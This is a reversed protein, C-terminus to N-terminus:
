KKLKLNLKNRKINNKTIINKNEKNKYFIKKVFEKSIADSIAFAVSILFINFPLKQLELLTGLKTYPIIITTVLSLIITIKLAKSAKTKYFPKQTRLVFISLLEALCSEIFWVTRFTEPSMKLIFYILFFILMDFIASSIGFYKMFKKIYNVDYKQPHKILNEDINDSAIQTQPIDTILNTVMLQDPLLPIFPLAVSAFSMSFMNGFNEGATMFIYKMTNVFIRRGEIIGNELVSLEPEMLVLDAVEKAIDSAESVSISVDAKKLAPADNIGDGLYGVINGNEKLSDIIREKQRPSIEAFIHIKKAKKAISSNTMQDIENGTIVSNNDLELEKAIHKAIYKNDGTIIKLDIGRSMINKITKKSDKKLPDHILIFGLFIMENTNTINKDKNLLEIDKLNQYSLGIVRYGNYSHTEFSKNIKEKYEDINKIKQDINIYKCKNLVENVSGKTILINKCNFIEKNLSAAITLLKSDFNYPAEAIKKIDQLNNIINEKEAQINIAEDIPNKFGTQLKSNIYAIKLGDKINKGNIDIVDDVKLKGETITGTKDTCLINMSGLNQISNLKKVIVKNESLKKAGYSLTITNIAPLLQPAMGIAISLAFMISDIASKKTILNLVLIILVIIISIHMLMKSFDELTKEFETKTKKSISNGIKGFETNKGTNTIQITAKGSYIYTGMFIEDNNKKSIPISEGTLSSEDILLAESNIIVGDAPIINGTTLTVIDNPVLDSIDVKHNKGNRLVLTKVKVMELLKNMTNDAKYEQIFSLISSIFVIILIIVSNTIDKLIISILVAIILMILLPDKFQDLFLLFKNKKKKHELENLGYKEKQSLIEKTTLGTNIDTKILNNSKNFTNKDKTENM